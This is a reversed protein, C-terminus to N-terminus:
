GIDTVVFDFMSKKHIARKTQAHLVIMFSYTMDSSGLSKTMRTLMFMVWRTDIVQGM